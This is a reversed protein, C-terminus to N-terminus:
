RRKEYEKEDWVEIYYGESGLSVWLFPDPAPQITEKTEYLRMVDFEAKPVATKIQVAKALAFEPVNGEYESLPVRKWERVTRSGRADEDFMLYMGRVIFILSFICAGIFLFPPDYKDTHTPDNQWLFPLLWIAMAVAALWWAIAQKHGSWMGPKAKQAQYALVQDTVLPMIDLKRLSFLLADPIVLAQALRAYGLKNKASKALEAREQDMSSDFAEFGIRAIETAKM